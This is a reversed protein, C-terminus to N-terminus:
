VHAGLVTAHTVSPVPPGRRSLTHALVVGQHRRVTRTRPRPPRPAAPPRVATLLLRLPTFASRAVAHALTFFAAEGRALWLGCVAAALVHAALMGTSGHGAMAALHADPSMEMTMSPDMAPNAHTAAPHHDPMAAHSQGSSFILHLAGQVALLGTAIPLTGRRRGSALWALACTVAFALLLAGPPIEHGSM